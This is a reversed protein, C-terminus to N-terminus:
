GQGFLQFALHDLTAKKKVKKRRGFLDIGKTVKRKGNGLRLNGGFDNVGESNRLLSLIEPIGMGRKREGQARM